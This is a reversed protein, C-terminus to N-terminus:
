SVDESSGSVVSGNVVSTSSGGGDLNIANVIGMGLLLEVFEDLSLGRNRTKGDVQVVKVVGHKDHGIAVRASQFYRFQELTGGLLSQMARRYLVM